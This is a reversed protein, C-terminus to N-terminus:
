ESAAKGKSPRSSSKAAAADTKAPATKTDSKETKSESGTKAEGTPAAESEPKRPGKGDKGYDTIYFGTGKFQFSPSSFLKKVVGGCVPCVDVLPDSFKQIKEFRHHCSECQYEYLPM